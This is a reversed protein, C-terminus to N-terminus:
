EQQIHVFYLDSSSPIGGHLAYLQFCVCVQKASVIPQLRQLLHKRAQDDAKSDLQEYESPASSQNGLYELESWDNDAEVATSSASSGSFQDAIDGTM